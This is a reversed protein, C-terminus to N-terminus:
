LGGWEGAAIMRGVYAQLDADLGSRKMTRLSNAIEPNGGTFEEILGRWRRALTQVHPDAPDTGREMEARVEAILVPWEAEVAHMRESGVQKARERLEALQEPSYYKEANEVMTMVEITDMFEAASIDEAASLRLALMRLRELLRQQLGIQEELRSLHLEIVRVPSIDPKALLARIEELSFGLQRLSKIQQLRAVDEAVYLRYGSESRRSPSLLGIADYHHLARVSLGTRRALEGVKWQEMPAL